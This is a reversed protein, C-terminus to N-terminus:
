LGPALDCSVSATCLGQSQQPDWPQALLETQSLWTLEQEQGIRGELHEKAIGPGANGARASIGSDSVLSHLTNM